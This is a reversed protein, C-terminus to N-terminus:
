HQQQQEQQQRQRRRKHPFAAWWAEPLDLLAGFEPSPEGLLRKPQQQLQQQQLQQQQPQITHMHIALELADQLAESAAAATVHLSDSGQMQLGQTAPLVIDSGQVAAFAAASVAAEEAAQM